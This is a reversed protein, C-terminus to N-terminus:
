EIAESGAQGVSEIDRGLGEVTNCAAATFLLAGLGLTLAIKLIM